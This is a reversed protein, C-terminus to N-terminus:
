GGPEISVSGSGFVSSDACDTTRRRRPRRWGLRRWQEPGRRKAVLPQGRRREGAYRGGRARRRLHNSAEGKARSGVRTRDTEARRRKPRTHAALQVSQRAAGGLGAHEGRRAGGIQARGSCIGRRRGCGWLLIGVVLRPPDAGPVVPSHERGRCRGRRDGWCGRCGGYGSRGGCCDESSSEACAPMALLVRRSGPCRASRRHVGSRTGAIRNVRSPVHQQRHRWDAIAVGEGGGEGGERVAWERRWRAAHRRRWRRTRRRTRRTTRTTRAAPRRALLGSRCTRSATPLSSAAYSCAKSTSAKSCFCGPTGTPM